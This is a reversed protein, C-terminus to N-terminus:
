QKGGHWQVPWVYSYYDAAVWEEVTVVLKLKAPDSKIPSATQDCSIIVSKTRRLSQIGEVQLSPRDIYASIALVLTLLTHQKQHLKWSHEIFVLSAPTNCAKSATNLLGRLHLQCGRGSALRTADLVSQLCPFTTLSVLSRLRKGIFMLLPLKPLM